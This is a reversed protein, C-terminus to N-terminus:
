KVYSKELHHALKANSLHPTRIKIAEVEVQKASSLLHFNGLEEQIDNLVNM